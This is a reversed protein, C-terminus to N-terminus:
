HAKSGRRTHTGERDGRGDSHPRVARQGERSRQGVKQVIFPSHSPRRLREQEIDMMETWRKTTLIRLHNLARLLHHLPNTLIKPEESVSPFGGSSAASFPLRDEAAGKRQQAGVVYPAHALSKRRFPEM